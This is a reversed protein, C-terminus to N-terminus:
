TKKREKLGLALYGLGMLACLAAAETMFRILHLELIYSKLDFVLFRVAATGFIALVAIERSLLGMCAVLLLGGCIVYAIVALIMRLVSGYSLGQVILLLCYVAGMAGYVGPVDLKAGRLMIMFAAELAMPIILWLLQEGIPVTETRTFGFYYVIRLFFAVGMFAAATNIQGGKFDMHYRKIRHAM